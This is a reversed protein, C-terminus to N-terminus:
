IKPLRRANASLMKEKDESSLPVTEMWKMGPLNELFLWDVSLLVRDIGLQPITCLLAPTSFFGSNTVYFCDFFDKSSWPKSGERRFAEDM